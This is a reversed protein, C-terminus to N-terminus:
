VQAALEELKPSADAESGGWSVPLARLGVSGKCVYPVVSYVGLATWDEAYGHGFQSSDGGFQKKREMDYGTKVM